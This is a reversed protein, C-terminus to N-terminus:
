RDKQMDVPTSRVLFLNEIEGVNDRVFVFKTLDGLRTRASHHSGDAHTGCQSVKEVLSSRLTCTPAVGASFGHVRHRVIERLVLLVTSAPLTGVTGSSSWNFGGQSVPFLATVLSTM